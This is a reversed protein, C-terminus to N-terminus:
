YTFNSPSLTLSAATRQRIDSDATFTAACRPKFANTNSIALSFAVHRCIPQDVNETRVQFRDSSVLKAFAHHQCQSNASSSREAKHQYGDPWPRLKTGRTM